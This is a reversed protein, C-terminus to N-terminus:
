LVIGKRWLKFRAKPDAPNVPAATSVAPTAPPRTAPAVVTNPSGHLNFGRLAPADTAQRGLPDAAPISAPLSPLGALTKAVGSVKAQVDDIQRAMTSVQQALGGVQTTLRTVGDATNGLTQRDADGFGLLEAVDRPPNMAHNTALAAIFQEVTQGADAALLSITANAAEDLEIIIPDRM